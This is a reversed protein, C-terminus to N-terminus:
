ADDDNRQQESQRRPGITVSGLTVINGNGKVIIRHAPDVPKEPTASAMIERVRDRLQQERNL